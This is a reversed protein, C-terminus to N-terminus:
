LNNETFEASWKCNKIVNGLKTIEGPEDGEKLPANVAECLGQENYGSEVVLRRVDEENIFCYCGAGENGGTASGTGDGQQVAGSTLTNLVLNIIAYSSFIICVGIAAWTMASAGTSIKDSNGAATVWLFGGYVFVLLAGAGLIGLLKEIVNGIIETLRVEGIKQENTGNSIGGIPNVLYIKESGETELEPEAAKVSNVMAVLGFFVLILTGIVINKKTFWSLVMNNLRM